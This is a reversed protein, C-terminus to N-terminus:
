QLDESATQRLGTICPRSVSPGALFHLRCLLRGMATVLHDVHSVVKTEVFDGVWIRFSVSHRQM